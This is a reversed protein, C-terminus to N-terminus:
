FESKEFIIAQLIWFNELYGFISYIHDFQICVVLLCFKLAIDKNITKCHGCFRTFIIDCKKFAIKPMELHRLYFYIVNKSDQSSVACSLCAKTIFNRIKFNSWIQGITVQLQGKRPDFKFNFTVMSNQTGFSWLVHAVRCNFLM